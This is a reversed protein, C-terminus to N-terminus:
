LSEVKSSKSYWRTRENVADNFIVFCDALYEGIIFDPTDSQNELSMKNIVKAFEKALDELNISSGM